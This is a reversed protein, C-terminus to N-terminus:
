GRCAARHRARNKSKVASRKAQAVTGAPHKLYGWTIVGYSASRLFQRKSQRLVPRTVAPAINDPSITPMGAGVLGALALALIRGQTM